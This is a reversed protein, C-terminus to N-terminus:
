KGLKGTVFLLCWVGSVGVALYVIKAIDTGLGAVGTVLDKDFIGFFGWNLAGIIVLLLALWDLFNAKGKAM